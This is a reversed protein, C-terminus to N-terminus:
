VSYITPLTLHTYSVSKIWSKQNHLWQQLLDRQRIHHSVDENVNFTHMDLVKVISIIHDQWEKRHNKTAMVM